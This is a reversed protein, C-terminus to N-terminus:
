AWILTTWSKAFMKILLKRIDKWGRRGLVLLLNAKLVALGVGQEAHGGEEEAPVQEPDYEVQVLQHM